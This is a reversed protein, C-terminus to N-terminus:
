FKKRIMGHNLRMNELVMLIYIIGVRRGKLDRLKDKLRKSEDEIKWTENNKKVLKKKM